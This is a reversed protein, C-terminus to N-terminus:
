LQLQKELRSLDSGRWIQHWIGRKQWDMLQSHVTKWPPYEKPLHEWGCGSRMVYVIAELIVRRDSDYRRGVRREAGLLPELCQWVQGVEQELSLWGGV